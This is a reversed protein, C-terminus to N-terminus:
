FGAICLMDRSLTFFHNLGEEAQQRQGSQQELADAEDRREAALREDDAVAARLESALYRNELLTLVPLGIVLVILGSGAIMLLNLPRAVLLVVVCMLYILAVAGIARQATTWANPRM